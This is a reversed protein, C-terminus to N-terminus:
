QSLLKSLSFLLLRHRVCRLVPPKLLNNCYFFELMGARLKASVASETVNGNRVQVAPLFATFRTSKWIFLVLTSMFPFMLGWALTYAPLGARLLELWLLVMWVVFLVVSLHLPFWRLKQGM